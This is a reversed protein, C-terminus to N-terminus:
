GGIPLELTSLGLVTRLKVKVSGGFPSERTTFAVSYHASKSSTANPTTGASFAVPGGSPLFMRVTGKMAYEAAGDRLGVKITAYAKAGFWNVSRLVACAGNEGCTWSSDSSNTYLM